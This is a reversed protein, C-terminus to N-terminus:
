LALCLGRGRSGRVLCKCSGDVARWEPNAALPCRRDPRFSARTLEGLLIVPAAAALTQGPEALRGLVIGDAPAAIVAFRQEFRAATRDAEAARAAAEAAEVRAKSVWGQQLLARQRDLEAMAQGARSDAAAAAADIATRDLSALLQGAAVRDGERVLVSQVRGGALFALPTERRLRVTGTAHVAGDAAAGVRHLVVPAAASGTVANGRPEDRSPSCSALLLGAVGALAMWPRGFAAAAFRAWSSVTEVRDYAM